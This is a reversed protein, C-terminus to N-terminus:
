SGRRRTTLASILAWVAVAGMTLAVVTFPFRVGADVGFVQPMYAAIGFGSALVAFLGFLSWYNTPTASGYSASASSARSSTGDRTRSPSPPQSHHFDRAQDPCRITIVGTKRDPPRPALAACKGSLIPGQHFSHSRRSM